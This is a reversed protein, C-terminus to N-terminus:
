IAVAKLVKTCNRGSKKLVIRSGNGIELHVDDVSMRMIDLGRGTPTFSSILSCAINPPWKCGEDKISVTLTKNAFKWDVYTIGNLHDQTGHRYANSIAEGVAILIDSAEDDSFRLEKAIGHVQKRAASLGMSDTRIVMHGTHAIDMVPLLAM